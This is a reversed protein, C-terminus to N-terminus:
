HLFLASNLSVFPKNHIQKLNVAVKVAKVDPIFAKTTLTSLIPPPGSFNGM